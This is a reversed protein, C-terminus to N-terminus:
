MVLGNWLSSSTARIWAMTRRDFPCACDTMLVSPRHTLRSLLVTSISPARTCRVPLSYWISSSRANCLSRGQGLFHEQAIKVATHVLWLHLDDVDKDALQPFFESTCRAALVVDLRDPATAVYHALLGLSCCRNGGSLNRVDQWGM